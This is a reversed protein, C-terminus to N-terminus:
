KLLQIDQLEDLIDLRVKEDLNSKGDSIRKAVEKITSGLVTNKYMYKSEHLVIKNHAILDQVGAYWVILEKGEESKAEAVTELMKEVPLEPIMGEFVRIATLKLFKSDAKTSASILGKYRFIAALFDPDEDILRDVYRRADDKEQLFTVEADRSAQADEIKYPAEAVVESGESLPTVVKGHLCAFWLALRDEIREMNFTQGVFLDYSYGKWFGHNNGALIGPVGMQKEYPIVIFEQVFKVIEKKDDETYGEVYSPCEVTFGTFFVGIPNGDPTKANGVKHFPVRRKEKIGEQPAKTIGMAKEEKTAYSAVNDVVTYAKGPAFDLGFLKM